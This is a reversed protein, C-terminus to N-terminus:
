QDGCSRATGVGDPTKEEMFGRGLKVVNYEATWETRGHRFDLCWCYENRVVSHVDETHMEFSFRRIDLTICSSHLTDYSRQLM